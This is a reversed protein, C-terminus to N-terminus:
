ARQYKVVKSRRLWIDVNPPRIRQKAASDVFRVRWVLGEVPREYRDL